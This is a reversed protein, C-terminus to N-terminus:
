KSGFNKSVPFQFSSVSFIENAPYQFSFFPFQFSFISFPFSFHFHFNCIFNPFQFANEHENEFIVFCFISLQFSFNILVANHIHSNSSVHYSTFFYILHRPPKAAAGRLASETHSMGKWLINVLNFWTVFQSTCDPAQPSAAEFNRNWHPNYNMGYYLLRDFIEKFCNNKMKVFNKRWFDYM